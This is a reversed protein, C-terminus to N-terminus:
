PGGFDHFEWSQFNRFEWKPTELCFSMQPKTGHGLVFYVILPFTTAEGLYSGHHTRQIWTQGHRMRVGFVNFSCVLWSTIQNTCTQTLLQHKDNHTTGM